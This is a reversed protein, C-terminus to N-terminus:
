NTGTKCLINKLERTAEEPNDTKSIASVIAIGDAGNDMLDRTNNKDIGGICVIPKAYLERIKKLGSIGIPKALDTTKTNTSFIPSIGIYDAQQADNAVAQETTSVSLGIIKDDGLLTRAIAYPMDTQGIHVGDADIALAIDLRDNILLPVNYKECIEKCRVARQYFTQTDCTKERLQIITAGGKLSAELISFFSNDDKISDDTVYMLAYDVKPM